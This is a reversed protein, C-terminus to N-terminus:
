EMHRRMDESAHAQPLVVDVRIQRGYRCGALSRCHSHSALAMLKMSKIKKDICVQLAPAFFLRGPDDLFYFGHRGCVVHIAHIEIHPEGRYLAELRTVGQLHM